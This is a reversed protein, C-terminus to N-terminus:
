KKEKIRKEAVNEQNVEKGIRKKIKSEKRFGILVEVKVEGKGRKVREEEREIEKM